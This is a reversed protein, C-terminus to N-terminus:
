ESFTMWSSAGPRLWGRRKLLAFDGFAELVVDAGISHFSPEDAASRYAALEDGTPQEAEERFRRQVARDHEPASTAWREVVLGWTVLATCVDVLLLDSRDGDIYLHALRRGEDILAVSAAMLSASPIQADDFGPLEPPRPTM